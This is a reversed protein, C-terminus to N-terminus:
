FILAFTVVKITIIITVAVMTATNTIVVVANYNQAPVYSTFGQIRFTAEAIVVSFSGWPWANIFTVIVFAIVIIIVIIWM